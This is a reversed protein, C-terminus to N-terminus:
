LPKAPGPTLDPQDLFTVALVGAPPPIRLASCLRVLRATLPDGSRVSIGPVVLFAAPSALFNEVLDDLASVCGLAKIPDAQSLLAHMGSPPRQNGDRARTARRTQEMSATGRQPRPRRGNAARRTRAKSPITAWWRRRQLRGIGMERRESSSKQVTSKHRVPRQVRRLADLRCSSEV